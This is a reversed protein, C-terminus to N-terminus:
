HVRLRIRRSPQSTCGCSSNGRLTICRYANQEDYELVGDRILWHWLATSASVDAHSKNQRSPHNSTIKFLLPQSCPRCNSAILLLNAANQPLAHSRSCLRNKNVKKGSKLPLRAGAQVTHECVMINSGTKCNRLLAFSIAM